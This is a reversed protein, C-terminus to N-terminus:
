APPSRGSEPAFRVDSIEVGIVRIPCQPDDTVKFSFGLGQRNKLLPWIDKTKAMETTPEYM